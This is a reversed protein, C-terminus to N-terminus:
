QVDNVGGQDSNDDGNHRRVYDRLFKQQLLGGPDDGLRRLLQQNNEEQRQQKASTTKEEDQPTKDLQSQQMPDKNNQQSSQQNQKESQTNQAPNQKTDDQKSDPPSNEKKQQQDSQNNQTSNSKDQNAKNKESSSNDKNDQQKQQQKQQQQEQLLKKVIDRNISADTNKPNLVLAKDYAAIAEQYKGMFAAANGANYQGDSTQHSNFQSFADAYNGARYHSVSQWNKDKFVHAAVAPKGTQLLQHGQQDPTQWLDMWQWANATLPFILLLCAWYQSNKM